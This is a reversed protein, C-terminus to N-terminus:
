TSDGPLHISNNKSYHEATRVGSAIPPASLAAKWKQSDSVWAFLLQMTLLSAEHNTRAKNSGIPEATCDELLLCRYDRMAADRVTSDVCVSTTCGTVVLTDIGKDALMEHLGTRYFGSFRTKYLVTDAPDPALEPIIETNWTDRILIRSSSGDPAGIVAGVKMPGHKALNPGTAPGADSLDPKFAMKLYVIPLHAKRAFSLASRLAPVVARMPAIDIGARDFMGGAAAFDNQMDIVLMATKSRDLTLPEPRADVRIFEPAAAAARTLSMSVSM